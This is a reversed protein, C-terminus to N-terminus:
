PTECPNPIQFFDYPVEYDSYRSVDEILGLDLGFYEALVLRFTNVPSITPYLRDANVNPLRLANLIAVRSTPEAQDAGHDGQLVIIPSPESGEIIDQLLEIMHENVFMVQNRYGSVYAQPDESPDPDPDAPGAEDFSGFVYPKHPAVVHAFVLKPGPLRPIESLQTLTYRVRAEHQELAGASINSFFAVSADILASVATTRLLLVEFSNLSPSFFSTDHEPALYHDADDLETWPFGTEFAVIEYGLGELTRRVMSERILRFVASRDDNDATFEDSLNHLYDINLSSALSLDTQSYNSQSCEAVYFGLEELKNLFPENSFDFNERLIDGRTYADLIIYYIDPLELSASDTSGGELPLAREPEQVARYESGVVRALPILLSVAGMVNLFPAAGSWFSSRRILWLAAVSSLLFAPLLYRHRGLVTGALSVSKLFGYVHGYAFFLILVITGVAAAKAWDALVLRLLLLLVLAVSLSIVVSRIAASSRVQGVNSALLALVAYAAFLLPHIPARLVRM